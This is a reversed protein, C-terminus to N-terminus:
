FLVWPCAHLPVCLCHDYSWCCHYCHRGNCCFRYEHQRCYVQLLLTSTRQSGIYLLVLYMSGLRLHPLKPSSLPLPGCYRRVLLCLWQCGSESDRAWTIRDQTLGTRKGARKRGHGRRICRGVKPWLYRSMEKIIAWDAKRQEKNSVTQEALLPDQGGASGPKSASPTKAVGGGPPGNHPQASPATATDKKEITEPRLSDAEEPRHGAEQQISRIRPDEKRHTPTTTFLRTTPRPLHHVRLIRFSTPQFLTSIGAVRGHHACRLGLM